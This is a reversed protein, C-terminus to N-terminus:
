GVGKGKGSRRERRVGMQGVGGVTARRRAWFFVRIGWEALGRGKGSRRRERRGEM